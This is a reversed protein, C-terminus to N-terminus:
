KTVCWIFLMLFGLLGLNEVAHAVVQTNSACAAAAIAPTAPTM